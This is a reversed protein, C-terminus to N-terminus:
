KKTLIEQERNKIVLNFDQGRYASALALFPKHAKQPAAFM